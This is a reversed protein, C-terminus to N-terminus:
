KKINFFLKIGNFINLFDVLKRIHFLKMLIYRPRWYYEKLAQRHIRMTEKPPLSPLNLLPLSNSLPSFDKWEWDKRILSKEVAENYLDTGPYPSAIFFAAIDLNLEKAFEVTKRATEETEGINGIIFSGHTKIGSKKVLKISKRVDDLVIKKNISDLIKQDGSEIGFSIERCGAKKMKDLLELTVLGVRSSCVWAIKLKRKIIENCVDLARKYDATFLEDTFSFERMNYKDVCYEIEDVFKKPDRGRYRRTWVVRACCFSCQFPCGRGSTISTPKYISVRKTPPPGYLDNPLLDRAPYPLQDINEILQRPLNEKIKNEEKYFLGSIDKFNMLGDIAKILEFFTIEGEGKVVYDVNVNKVTEKPLASPHAGGMVVKIDQSIEKVLEAIKLAYYFCPTTSTIGVVDPKINIIHKKVDELEMKLAEADLISIDVNDKKERLYAAIYALGLPPASGGMGKLGGYIIYM